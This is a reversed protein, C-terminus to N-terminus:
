DNLNEFLTSIYDITNKDIITDFLSLNAKIFKDDIKRYIDLSLIKNITDEDFRYNVIKAPNGVVIAYPPVDKSVVSMAGIIAGQGIKIGSLITSGYGIWVDDKVIIPGKSLGPSSIGQYKYKFPFTSITKYNHNGGLIFKVDKAISCFNGIILKEHEAGWSLVEIPGYTKTGVKVINIDFINIPFTNNHSNINRWEKKFIRRKAKARFYNFM